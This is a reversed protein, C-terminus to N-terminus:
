RRSPPSSTRTSSGPSPSSAASPSSSSWGARRPGAGRGPRRERLSPDAPRGFGDGGLRPLHLDPALSLHVQDQHGGVGAAVAPVDAPRRPHPRVTRGGDPGHADRRAPLCRGGGPRAQEGPGVPRLRLQHGLRAEQVGGQVQRGGAAPRVHHRQFARGRRRHRDPRDAAPGGPSRGPRRHGAEQEQQDGDRLDHPHRGEDARQAGPHRSRHLRHEVRLARGHHEGPVGHRAGHRGDLLDPRGRDGASGRPGGTARGPAAVRRGRRRHAGAM